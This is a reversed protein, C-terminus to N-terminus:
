HRDQAEHARQREGIQGGVFLVVQRTATREPHRLCRHRLPCPGRDRTAGPLHLLTGSSPQAPWQQLATCRCICTQHDPQVPLRPASCGIRIPHQPRSTGSPQRFRPDRKRFLTDAVYRRHRQARPLCTRMPTSGADATLVVGETRRPVVSSAFRRVRTSSCRYSCGHEQARRLGGRRGRDPAQM